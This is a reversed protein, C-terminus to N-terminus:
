LPQRPTTLEVQGGIMAARIALRALAVGQRVIMLTVAGGAGLLAHGTALGVYASAIALVALSGLAGHLLALPRRALLGLAAVYSRFAALPAGALRRRAVEVRAYDAILGVAVLAVLPPLAGVLLAIVLDGDTLAVELRDAMAALSAAAISLVPVHAMASLLGVRAFALFTDAGGAGFTRATAARGEPRELLVALLGGHLFWSAVAWILAVTLVIGACASVLHPAARVVEVLAVLDGDVAQDFRPRRALEVALVNACAVAAVIALMAQVAYVALVTGGYHWTARGGVRL